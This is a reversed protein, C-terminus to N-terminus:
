GIKFARIYSGEKINVVGSGGAKAKLQLTGGTTSMQVLGKLEIGLNTTGGAIASYTVSGFGTDNFWGAAAINSNLGSVGAAVISMNGLWRLAANKLTGTQISVGFGHTSAGSMNFMIFGDLQYIGNAAASVSLGSIKSNTSTFGQASVLQSTTVVKLQVGGLGANIVSITNSNTDQRVSLAAVNSTIDSLRTSIASVQLSLQVSLASIATSMASANLSIRAVDSVLGSVVDHISTINASNGSVRDKLSTVDASNAIIASVANSLVVSNISLRNSIADDASKMQASNAVIASIADSVVASNASVRNKLSTVDASNTTIASGQNSVVVSLASIQQSLASAILSLQISLASIANSLADNASIRNSTEVAVAASLETSTVSGTGPVAAIFAGIGIFNDSLKHIIQAATKEDALVTGQSEFTVSTQVSITVSRAASARFIVAEFGVPLGTPINVFIASTSNTFYKFKGNDGASLTYDASTVSEVPPYKLLSLETSIASVVTSVLASIASVRNKLSTVDASNAIIASVANSLIVSNQSLNNSVTDLRTSLASVNLSIVGVNSTIDSLRTSIASVQLSLQASLNSVVNKLSTVDASNTTIASQANSVIISLANRASIENSVVVSLASIQQSLASAILSLQASLNSIVNKVSTVDASNTTIASQANSVIVSLANRASIENSVVVSLASIQQSLASAILSLQTSLVSIAQSIANDASTMQASNATIASLANSVIASNASVRNKLSTIDASNAVVASATNSVVVSLASIQQSLASAVLSLQVSLASVANSLANDASVRNSTEVAIALSMKQSTVSATGAAITSNVWQQSASNFVLYQGDTVTGTSVDGFNNLSVKFSTLDASIGAVRTKLSTTDASNAVIASVANSLVASNQSLNNSISDVRTSLASLNLSMVGINSTIDSLRTSIASVQLSLQSSLVSVANSIADDASKMQASNTAIASLANSLTASNASVRNKLSTVDASNAIVASALNSLIVSNQSLNNSVSDIRVSLAGAISTTQASNAVIASSQNSVVVSLASILNSLVNDASIRNSAEAAVAASLETSTVSATAAISITSAVWQGAASNYMLVQGDAASNTSVDAISNLVLASLANSVTDIRASLGLAVTSILASNASVRDKLSTVDASNAQMASNVNSVIVSLASISNSLVNDASVRNIIEVSLSNSVTNIHLDIASTDSALIGSTLALGTGITVYGIQGSTGFQGILRNQTALNPLNNITVPAATSQPNLTIANPFIDIYSNLTNFAVGGYLRISPITTALPSNIYLGAQVPQSSQSWIQTHLREIEFKNYSFNDGAFGDFHHLYNFDMGLGLSFDGQFYWSGNTLNFTNEDGNFNRDATSLVDEGAVGFRQTTPNTSSLVGSALSLGTGVTLYGLKDTASDQGIIRNQSTLNTLNNMLISGATTALEIKIENPRLRVRTGWYGGYSFVPANTHAFLGIEPATGLTGNMHSAIGAEATTSNNNTLWLVTNRPQLTFNQSGNGANDNAFIYFDDINTWGFDFNTGGDINTNATLSGGLKVTNSTRTLANQFTLAEEAGIDSALLNRTTVTQVHGFTDFTLLDIVQAASTDLNTVSSTDSHALTFTENGSDNNETLLIGSGQVLKGNLYGATTDNSSVKVLEDTVSGGSAAITFNPYTGTITINSGQTLTVIQDPATNIISLTENAGDNLETLIIGSGSILKGKLYGAILDNSSVKILEDTSVGPTVITWNLVDNDFSLFIEGSSSYGPISKLVKFIAPRFYNFETPLGAALNYFENDVCKAVTSCFNTLEPNNDAYVKLLDDYVCSLIHTCEINQECCTCKTERM